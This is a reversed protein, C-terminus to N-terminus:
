KESMALDNFREHPSRRVVSFVSNVSLVFLAPETPETRETTFIDLRFFQIIRALPLIIM